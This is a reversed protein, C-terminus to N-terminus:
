EYVHNELVPGVEIPRARAHQFVEVRRSPAQGRADRRAEPGVGGANAPDVLVDDASRLHIEGFQARNLVPVDAVPHRLGLADGLDCADAAEDLLVADHDIRAPQLRETDGKGLDVVRDPVAVAVHAAAGDLQRFDLERDAAAAIHFAEGIQLLDHHFAVAPHRDEQAVNRADFEYGVLPAADGLDVPLAFGDGADSQLAGALVRECDYAVDFLPQGFEPRAKGLAYRNFRDIVAGVQDIARDVRQFGRQDLFAHDNRENADNKEQMHAACEDGDDRQRDADQDGVKQHM